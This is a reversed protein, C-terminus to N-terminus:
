LTNCQDHVHAVSSKIPSTTGLERLTECSHRAIRQSYLPIFSLFLAGLGLVTVAAVIIFCFCSVVAAVWIYFNLKIIITIILM